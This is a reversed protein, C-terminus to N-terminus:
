GNGALGKIIKYDDERDYLSSYGYTASKKGDYIIIKYPYKDTHLGKYITATVKRLNFYEDLLQLSLYPHKLKIGKKPNGNKLEM